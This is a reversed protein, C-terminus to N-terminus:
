RGGRAWSEWSRRVSSDAGRWLVDLLPALAGVTRMDGLRRAVGIRAALWPIEVMAAPSSPPPHRDLLQAARVLEKNEVLLRMATEIEPWCTWPCLSDPLSAFLKRAAASDRFALARYARVAGALFDRSASDQPTSPKDVSGNIRDILATLESREETAAYVGAAARWRETLSGVSAKRVLASVSEAPAAGYRYFTQIISTPLLQITSDRSKWSEQIRGLVLLNATVFGRVVFRERASLESRALLRRYMLFAVDPNARWRRMVYATLMVSDTPMEDLTRWARDHDSSSSSLLQNIAQFRRDTTQVRLYRRILARCSDVSRYTLALEIAHFYAPAFGSDAAIASEFAALASDQRLGLRFGQHLLLEGHEMHGAPNEPYTLALRQVM